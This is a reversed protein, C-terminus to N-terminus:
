AEHLLRNVLAERGAEDLEDWDLGRERARRRLQTEAHAMREDRHANADRALAFLAARKSESPLQRILSLVQEGTLELVSMFGIEVPGFRGDRAFMPLWRKGFAVSVSNAGRTLHRLQTPPIKVGVQRHIEM